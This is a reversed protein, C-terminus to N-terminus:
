PSLLAMSEKWLQMTPTKSLAAAYAAKAEALTDTALQADGFRRAAEAAFALMEGRKAERSGPVDPLTELDDFDYKADADTLADAAEKLDRFAEKYNGLEFLARGRYNRQILGLRFPRESAEPWNKRQWEAVRIANEEILNVDDVVAAWKKQAFRAVARRLYPESVMSKSLFLSLNHIGYNIDMPSIVRVVPLSFRIYKAGASFDEEADAFRGSRFREKGRQLFAIADYPQLAIGRSYAREAAEWDEPGNASFVLSNGLLTHKDSGIPDFEIAQGFLMAAESYRREKFARDARTEVDERERQAMYFALREEGREVLTKPETPWTILGGGQLAIVGSGFFQLADNGYRSDFLLREAVLRGSTEYLRLVRSEMSGIQETHAILAYFQGDPSAAIADISKDLSRIPAKANLESDFVGINSGVSALLLRNDQSLALKSNRNFGRSGDGIEVSSGIKQFDTSWKELAGNAALTVFPPNSWSPMGAIELVASTNDRAVEALKEGSGADFLLFRVLSQRDQSQRFDPTQEKPTESIAVGLLRNEHAFALRVHAGAPISKRWITTGKTLDLVSVEESTAFALLDSNEGHSLAELKGTPSSSVVHHEGTPSVAYLSWGGEGQNDGAFFKGKSTDASFLDGRVDIANQVSLDAVDWMCLSDGCDTLLSNGHDVFALANVAAMTGSHHLPPEIPQGNDTLFLRILGDEGATALYQGSPHFSIANVKGAHAQITRKHELNMSSYSLEWLDVRGESGCVALLGSNPATALCRAGPPLLNPLKELRLEDKTTPAPEEDSAGVKTPEAKDKRVAEAGVILHDLKAVGAIASAESLSKEDLVNGDISLIILKGDSTGAAVRSGDIFICSVVEAGARKLLTRVFTGDAQYLRLGEGLGQAVIFHDGSPQWAAGSAEISIQEDDGIPAVLQRGEMDLLHIATATAVLIRAGDPSPAIASVDRLWPREVHIRKVERSADLAKWAASYVESLLPKGSALNKKLATIATELGQGPNSQIELLARAAAERLSAEDASDRAQKEAAQALQKQQNADKASDNAEQTKQKAVKTQATALSTQDNANKGFWAATAAFVALVVGAAVARRRWTREKLAEAQLRRNEADAAKRAAELSAEVYRRAADSLLVRNASALDAAETLRRGPQILFATDRDQKEWAEADPELLDRLDLDRAAIEFLTKARPWHTLVAEHAVRARGGEDLVLLRAKALAEIIQAQDRLSPDQPIRAWRASIIALDRDHRGLNLIVQDIGKSSIGNQVLAQVTDEALRGIAGEIGDLRAYMAYTLRHTRGELEFLRSLVFQLLPLSDPSASAKDILVDAFPLGTPDAGDLTLKAVALPRLIIERFEMRTPRELRYMNDDKALRSFAASDDLSALMDSRLTAITWVAGTRSLAAILDGFAERDDIAQADSRARAWLLLEELQDVVLILKCVRGGGAAAIAAHIVDIALPNRRRIDELLSSANISPSIQLRALLGDVLTRLPPEASRQPTITLELWLDAASTQAKIDGILGARVLSSKGAGSRGHVLLFPFDRAAARKLRELAEERARGRGFFIERHESEFPELNRFPTGNWVKDAASVDVPIPPLALERLLQRANDIEVITAGTSQISRRLEADVETANVTPYAILIRKGNRAEASLRELSLALKRGLYGIEGVSLDERRVTGTAWVLTEYGIPDDDPLRNATKLAHAVFFGLQWSSGADIRNSVDIRYAGKGFLREILGTKASVFENYNRGIGARETSAGIYVDSRRVVPNEQVLRLLDVPGETTGVLVRVNSSDDIIM